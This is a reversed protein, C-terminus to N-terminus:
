AMNGEIKNIAPIAKTAVETFRDVFYNTIEGCEERESERQLDPLLPNWNRWRDDVWDWWAWWDEAVSGVGLQSELAKILSDRRETEGNTMKKISKPIRVGVYWDYPGKGEAELLIATRPIDYAAEEYAIWCARYLWVQNSQYNKDGSYNCGVHMDDICRHLNGDDRLKM